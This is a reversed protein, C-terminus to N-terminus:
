FVDLSPSRPYGGGWTALAQGGKGHLFVVQHGPWSGNTKKAMQACQQNRAAATVPVGLDKEVPCSGMAREWAQTATHPQHSGFAADLM